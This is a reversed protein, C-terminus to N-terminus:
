KATQAASFFFPPPSSFFLFFCGWLGGEMLISTNNIGSFKGGDQGLGFRTTSSGGASPREM